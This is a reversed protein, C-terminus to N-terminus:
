GKKNDYDDWVEFETRIVISKNVERTYFVELSKEAQVINGVIKALGNGNKSLKGHNTSLSLHRKSDFGKMTAEGTKKVFIPLKIL